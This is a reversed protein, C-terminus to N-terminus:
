APGGSLSKSVFQRGDLVADIAAMLDTSVRTKSVFGLAGLSLAERVVDPASQQSVFIIRSEPVLKHIQRAAEMGSLSPLGVDLLILDPKLETAKRLAEEGDSVECVIQLDRRRALMPLFLDFSPRLITWSSFAPQLTKWEIRFCPDSRQANLMSRQDNGYATRSLM